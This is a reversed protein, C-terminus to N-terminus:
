VIWFANFFAGIFYLRVVRGFPVKLDLGRILIFWRFARIVLSLIFLVLAALWYRLDAQRLVTLTEGLGIKWFLFVLAGASILVRLINMWRTKM